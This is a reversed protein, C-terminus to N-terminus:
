VSHPRTRAIVELPNHSFSSTHVAGSFCIKINDKLGVWQINSTITTIQHRLSKWPDKSLGLVLMIRSFLFLLFLVSFTKWNIINILRLLGVKAM